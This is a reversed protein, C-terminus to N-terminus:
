EFVGKPHFSKKSVVGDDLICIVSEEDEWCISSLKEVQFTERLDNESEV